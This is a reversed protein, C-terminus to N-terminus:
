ILKKSSKKTHKLSCNIGNGIRIKTKEAIWGKKKRHDIRQQQLQLLM